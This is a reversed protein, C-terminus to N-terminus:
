AFPDLQGGIKGDHDVISEIPRRLAGLKLIADHSNSQGLPAPVAPGKKNRSAGARM